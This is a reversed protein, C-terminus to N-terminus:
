SKVAELLTETAVFPPGEEKYEVGNGIALPATAAIKGKNDDFMGLEFLTYDSPHKNFQHDKSNVCDAFVRVAQGQEPMIFPPLYAKAKNDYVSFIRFNM